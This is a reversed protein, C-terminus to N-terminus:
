PKLMEFQYLLSYQILIGLERTINKSIPGGTTFM